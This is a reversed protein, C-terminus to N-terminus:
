LQNLPSHPIPQPPDTPRRLPGPPHALPHLRDPAHIPRAPPHPTRPAPRLHRPLRSRRGRDLRAPRALNPHALRPRGPRHAHDPGLPPLVPTRRPAPRPRPRHPRSQRPLLQRVPQHLHEPRPELHQPQAPPLPSPLRLRGSRRAPNAPRAAAPRDPHPPAPPPRLRLPRPRRPRPLHTRRRASAAPLRHQRIPGDQMDHDTWYCDQIDPAYISCYPNYWGVAATRWGSQVAEGFVSSAGDVLQRGSGDAHHVWLRNHFTYRVGDVLRGTLLSPIVNVTHIGISQTNTFLTSQARLADFNPLALNPARHEFLQNYSLEDFVIWVILPHQRPPQSPQNWIAAIQNPAPRWAAVWLLQAISALAFLALAATVFSGTRMLRRYWKAFRLLLLLVVATWLVLFLAVMGEILDFSNISQTRQLLYPPVAIALLLCLWPYFRTRAFSTLLLFLLLALLLLDAIHAFCLQALPFPTHMRVDAGGGLLDGYNTVLILSALGLSQCLRKLM